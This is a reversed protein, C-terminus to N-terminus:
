NDVLHDPRHLIHGGKKRSIKNDLGRFIVDTTPSNQRGSKFLSSQVPQAPIVPPRQTANEVLETPVQGTKIAETLVKSAFESQQKFKENALKERLLDAELTATINKQKEETKDEAKDQAKQIARDIQSAAIYAGLGALGTGAYAGAKTWYPHRDAFTRMSDGM